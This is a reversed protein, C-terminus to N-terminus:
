GDVRSVRFIIYNFEEIGTEKDEKSEKMPVLVQMFILDEMRKRDHLLRSFYITLVGVSLLGVLFGAAILEIPM